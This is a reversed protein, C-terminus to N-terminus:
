LNCNLNFCIYSVKLKIYILIKEKLEKQIQNQQEVSNSIEENQDNCTLKVSEYETLLKKYESDVENFRDTFFQLQQKLNINEDKIEEKEKTLQEIKDEESKDSKASALRADEKLNSIELDKNLIANELSVKIDVKEKDSLELKEQLRQVQDQLQSIENKLSCNEEKLTQNLDEIIQVNNQLEKYQVNLTNIVLEHEEKTKHLSNILESKENALLNLKEIYTEEQKERDGLTSELTSIKSSYNLENNNLEAVKAKLRDNDEKLLLYENDIKEYNANKEDFTVTINDLKEQLVKIMEEKENIDTKMESISDNYKIRENLNEQLLLEKEKSTEGFKQLEEKILNQIQVFESVFKTNETKIDNLLVKKQNKLETCKEKSLNLISHLSNIRRVTEYYKESINEIDKQLKDQNAKLQVNLENIQVNEREYKQLKLLESELNNNKQTANELKEILNKNQNQLNNLKSNSKTESEFLESQQQLEHVLSNNTKKLNGIEVDKSLIENHLEMKIQALKLNNEKERENFIQIEKELNTIRTKNDQERSQFVIANAKMEQLKENLTEIEKQAESLSNQLVDLQKSNDENSDFNTTSHTDNDTNKQLLGIKTELSYIKLQKEDMEDRLASELHAKAKQELMCQEKLETVRRIAKDQTEVLM